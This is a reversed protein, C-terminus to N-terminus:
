AEESPEEAPQEEAADEAVDEDGGEAPAREVPEGPASVEEDQRTEQEGTDAEATYTVPLIVETGDGTNEAGGVDLTHPFPDNYRDDEARYM